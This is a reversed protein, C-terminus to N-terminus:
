QFFRDLHVLLRDGSAAFSSPDVGEIMTTDDTGLGGGGIASKPQTDEMQM